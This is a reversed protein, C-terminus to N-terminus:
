KGQRGRLSPSWMAPGRVTLSASPLKHVRSIIVVATHANIKDQTGSQHKIIPVSWTMHLVFRAEPVVVQTISCLLSMDRQIRYRRSIKWCARPVRKTFYFHQLYNGTTFLTMSNIEPQQQPGLSTCHPLLVHKILVGLVPARPKTRSRLLWDRM